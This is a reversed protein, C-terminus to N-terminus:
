TRGHIGVHCIYDLHFKFLLCLSPEWQGLILPCQHSSNHGPLGVLDSNLEGFLTTAQLLKTQVACCFDPQLDTSLDKSPHSGTLM